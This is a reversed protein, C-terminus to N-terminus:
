VTYWIGQFYTLQVSMYSASMVLTAQGNINSQLTIENIGIDITGLAKVIVLRGDAPALPLTVTTAGSISTDIILVGDLATMQISQGGAEERIHLGFATTVEAIRRDDDTIPSDPSYFPLTIDDPNRPPLRYPDLADKDQECVILGPSNPDRSLEALPFKRWCRMCWGIGYTSEESTDLYLPM